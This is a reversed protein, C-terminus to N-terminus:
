EQPNINLTREKTTTETEAEPTDNIDRYTSIVVEM